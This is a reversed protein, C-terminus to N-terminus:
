STGAGAQWPFKAGRPDRAAHRHRGLCTNNRKVREPWRAARLWPFRGHRLQIRGCRAACRRGIAARRSAATWEGCGAACATSWSRRSRRPWASRGRRARTRSRASRRRANGGNYGSLHILDRPGQRRGGRHHGRRRGGRRAQRLHNRLNAQKLDFILQASTRSATSTTTPRRRPYARRGADHLPPHARDGATVKHGPLQGGEGPKSGQAMKIQLEDASMLYAPTVGFRGSAVQKIRSNGETGYREPGEGGEGSNSAAGLRNMAITLAEHAEASLAGHSMAATSFRRVIAEVLEVEALPIPTRGETNFALLDRIELPARGQVLRAYNRYAASLGGNSAPSEDKAKRGLGVVEHLSRVVEPSFAHQEGGRRSKYFGYSDLKPEPMTDDASGNDPGVANPKPFANRHWTLVDRALDDETIGGLRFNETGAFAAQVLEESLGVAEFIQAGCYSDLTAIGMKSM